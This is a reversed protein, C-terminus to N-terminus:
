QVLKAQLMLMDDWVAKKQAPTRLLYAPHYTVIASIPTGVGENALSEPVQYDHFGGRLKSISESRRLLGKAAVGGLMIIAKPKILAIHREIFPLSVDIEAQTPTRNGPPRWNLINTMYVSKDAQGNQRDLGICAIIKNLLQGSEGVFPKGQIDEEAAPAEGIIMVDAKANGDSFVMHSATKKLSLGEFDAIAKKLEELNKSEQALNQAVIVAEAAGMIDNPLSAQPKELQPKATQTPLNQVVKAIDPIATRDAAIDLVADAAEHDIHWQLSAIYAARNDITQSM